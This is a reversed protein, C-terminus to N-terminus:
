FGEFDMHGEKCLKGPSIMHLDKGKDRLPM